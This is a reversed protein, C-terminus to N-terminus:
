LYRVLQRQIREDERAVAYRALGTASKMKGLRALTRITDVIAPSHGARYSEAFKRAAKRYDKEGRLIRALTYLDRADRTLDKGELLKKQEAPAASKDRHIKYAWPLEGQRALEFAMSVRQMLSVLTLVDWANHLLVKAKLGQDGFRLLEFYAQAVEAGGLDGARSFNLLRTEADILRAPKEPYIRRILHYLDVHPLSALNHELGYKSARRMILPLDFSKGNFSVLVVNEAAAIFARLIDEEGAPTAAFLTTLESSDSSAKPSVM